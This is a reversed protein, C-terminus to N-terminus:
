TYRNPFAARVADVLEKVRQADDRPCVMTVHRTSVVVMDRLGIAAILHGPDEAVIVNDASDVLVVAAGVANGDSDSALTSALAPWSGVDLWELALPVVVVEVGSGPEAAPELVAYDVSISPLDPYTAALMAAREPRRWVSAIRTLATVAAPLHAQLQALVTDARWVFMGSNWLHRGSAVYATATALDPKERFATVAYAPAAGDGGPETRDVPADGSPEDIPDGREIYGLGTHPHTPVVGFTVLRSAPSALDFAHRLAVHFDEVPEIVHDATVVAVVADPDRAGLVAAVLGVAVATDRGWPEGLFNGPALGPLDALIAARHQELACVFIRQPDVVGALREHALQLLSRGSGVRLLQKPRDRRSLPWLRTGSGGALIVGYQM